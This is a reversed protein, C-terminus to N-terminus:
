RASRWCPCTCCRTVQGAGCWAAVCRCFTTWASQEDKKAKKGQVIYCIHHIDTMDEIIFALEAVMLGTTPAGPAVDPLRAGEVVNHQNRSVNERHTQRPVVM